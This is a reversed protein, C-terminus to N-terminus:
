QGVLPAVVSYLLKYGTNLSIENIVPEASIVGTQPSLPGKAPDIQSYVAFACLVLGVILLPFASLASLSFRYLRNTELRAWYAIIILVCLVVGIVAPIMYSSWLSAILSVPDSIASLEQLSPRVGQEVMFYPTILETLLIFLMGLMLFLIVLGKALARGFGFMGILCGFLIVPILLLGILALDYRLGMLFVNVFSNTDLVKPFQWLVYAARVMTLLFISIFLFLVLHRLLHTAPLKSKM